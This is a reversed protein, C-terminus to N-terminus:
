AGGVRSWPLMRPVLRKGVVLGLYASLAVFFAVHAAIHLELSGTGAVLLLGTTAISFAVM